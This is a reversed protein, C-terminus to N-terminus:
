HIEVNYNYQEFILKWQNMDDDTPTSFMHSHNERGIKEHKDLGMSHYPLLSIKTTKINNDKLFDAIQTMHLKTNNFNGIVPIRININTNDQSLKILNDLIYKNTVGTYEKHMQEDLIKIDYLFTDVYPILPIIMEYPVFGCTDVAVNIDLYKLEKLLELLFETDQLLVEGGSLTIGGNSNEFFIMDKEVIEVLQKVTYPKGVVEIANTCCAEVCEGCADCEPKFKIFFEPNSNDLFINDNTCKFICKKCGICREKHYIIQPKFLQSECNHCWLCSLLCGKFFISTRIGDGDHISFKQINIINATKM